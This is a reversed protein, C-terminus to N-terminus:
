RTSMKYHKRVEWVMYGKETDIIELKCDEVPLPAVENVANRVDNQSYDHGALVGGDIVKRFWLRIEAKTQEYTHSSDLFVFDFYHDNFKCSADLSSLPVIIINEHYQALRKWLDNLQNMGGYDMNDVLYFTFKKGIRLLEKIMFEASDGNAVGCEVLRCPDPLQAAIKKYYESFDFM